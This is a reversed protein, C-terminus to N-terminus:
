KAGEPRMAQLISDAIRVLNGTPCRSRVILYYVILLGNSWCSTMSVMM